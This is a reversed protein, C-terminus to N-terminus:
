SPKSGSRILAVVEEPTSASKIREVVPVNELLRAVEALAGIHGERDPTGFAIVLTVPDNYANGFSVPSALTVLSMCPRRVGEEPRAHPLAVGPAIVIYPGIEEVMAVMAEVYRPEAGGTAVLLEGARRVADQWGAAHVKLAISGATLMEALSPQERQVNKGGIM